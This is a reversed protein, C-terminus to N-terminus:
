FIPTSFHIEKVKDRSHFLHVTDKAVNTRSEKNEEEKEDYELHKATHASTGPTLKHARRCGKRSCNCGENNAYNEAISDDARKFHFVKLTKNKLDLAVNGLCAVNDTLRKATNVCLHDLIHEKERSCNEYNGKYGRYAEQNNVKDELDNTSNDDLYQVELLRLVVGLTEATREKAHDVHAQAWRGGIMAPIAFLPLLLLLPRVTALLVMTMLLQLV